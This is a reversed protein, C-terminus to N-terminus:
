RFYFHREIWEAGMAIAAMDVAIGNHHGSFEIAKVKKKYDKILREIEFLCIQDFPM